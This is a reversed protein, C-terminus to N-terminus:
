PKNFLFKTNQKTIMILIHAIIEASLACNVCKNSTPYKMRNWWVEDAVILTLCPEKKFPAQVM